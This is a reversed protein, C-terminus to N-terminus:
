EYIEIGTIKEFTTFVEANWKLKCPHNPVKWYYQNPEYKLFVNNIVIEGLAFRGITLDNLSNIPVNNKLYDPLSNVWYHFNSMASIHTVDGGFNMWTEAAFRRQPKVMSRGVVEVDNDKSINLWDKGLTNYGLYLGGWSVGPILYFKDEEKIEEHLGLPHIDYLAGARKINTEESEAADECAHITENLEFYLDRLETTNLSQLTALRILSLKSEKGDLVEGYKEFEEHMYNLEKNSYVEYLPLQKTQLKNIGITINRLREYLRPLTSRTHNNINSCIKHNSNELNKKTLAVWRKSLPTNYINYTLTTENSSFDVFTVRLKTM